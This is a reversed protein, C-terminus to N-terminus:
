WERNKDSWASSIALERICVNRPFHIPLPLRVAGRVIVVSVKLV